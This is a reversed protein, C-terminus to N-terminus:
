RKGRSARRRNGPDHSRHTARRSATTSHAQTRTSMAQQQARSRPYLARWIGFCFLGFASIAGTPVWPFRPELVILAVLAGLMTTPAAFLLYLYGALGGDSLRWENVFPEFHVIAAYVCLFVAAGDLLCNVEPEIHKPVALLVSFGAYGGMMFSLWTFARQAYLRHKESDETLQEVWQLRPRTLAISLLTGGILTIIVERGSLQPAVATALM